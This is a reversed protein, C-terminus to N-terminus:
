ECGIMRSVSEIRPVCKAPRDIAVFFALRIQLQLRLVNWLHKRRTEMRQGIAQARFQGYIRPM